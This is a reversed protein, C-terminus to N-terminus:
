VEAPEGERFFAGMTMRENKGRTDCLSACCCFLCVVVVVVVVVNDNKDVLAADTTCYRDLATTVASYGGLGLCVGGARGGAGTWTPQGSM